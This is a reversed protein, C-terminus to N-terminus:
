SEHPHSKNFGREYFGDALDAVAEELTDAVILMRNYEIYIHGTEKDTTIKAKREM